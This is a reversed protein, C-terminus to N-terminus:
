EHLARGARIVYGEFTLSARATVVEDPLRIWTLANLKVPGEVLRGEHGSLAFFMRANRYRPCQAGDDLRALESHLPDGFDFVFTVFASSVGHAVDTRGTLRRFDDAAIPPLGRRDTAQARGLEIEFTSTSIFIM